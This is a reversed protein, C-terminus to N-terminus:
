CPSSNLPTNTKCRLLEINDVSPITIEQEEEKEEKESQIVTLEYLKLSIVDHNDTLLIPSLCESFQM